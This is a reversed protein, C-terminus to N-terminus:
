DLQISRACMILAEFNGTVPTSSVIKGQQDGKTAGQVIARGYMTGAGGEVSSALPYEDAIIADKGLGADQFPLLDCGSQDRNKEVTKEDTDHSRSYGTLEMEAM